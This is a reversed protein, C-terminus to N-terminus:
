FSQRSFSITVVWELIRAQSIRHVSSGPLSCDRPNCLILCLQSHMCTSCCGPELDKQSPPFLGAFEDRWKIPGM